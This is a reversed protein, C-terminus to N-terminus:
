RVLESRNHLKRHCKRCVWIVDLKCDYDKHHGEIRAKEFSNKCVSCVEPKKIRGSSIANCLVRYAKVIKTHNRRYKKNGVRTHKRIKEKNKLKWEKTKEVNKLRWIRGQKNHCEKCAPRLGIGESRVYYETLSKVKKCNSCRKRVKTNKM